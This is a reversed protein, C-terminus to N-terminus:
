VHVREDSAESTTEVQVTAPAKSVFAALDEPRWRICRRGFRVPKPLVQQKTWRAITIKSVRFLAALDDITLLKDM